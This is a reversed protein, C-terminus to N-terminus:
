VKCVSEMWDKFRSRNWKSLLLCLSLSLNYNFTQKRSHSIFYTQFNNHNKKHTKIHILFLGTAAVMM